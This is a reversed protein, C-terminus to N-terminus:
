KEWRRSTNKKLRDGQQEQSAIPGLSNKRGKMTTTTTFCQKRLLTTKLKSTRCEDVKPIYV